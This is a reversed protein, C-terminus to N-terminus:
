YFFVPLPLDSYLERLRLSYRVFLMRGCFRKVDNWCSQGSITPQFRSGITCLHDYRNQCGDMVTYQMEKVRQKLKQRAEGRVAVEDVADIFLTSFTPKQFSLLTFFMGSSCGGLDRSDNTDAARCDTPSTGLQRSPFRIPVASIVSIAM